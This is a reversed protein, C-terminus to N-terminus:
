VCSLTSLVFRSFSAASFRSPCRQRRALAFVSVAAAAGFAGVPSSRAAASSLPPSCARVVERVVRARQRDGAARLRVARDVSRFSPDANVGAAVAVAFPVVQVFPASVPPLPKLMSTARLACAVAYAMVAVAVTEPAVLRPM